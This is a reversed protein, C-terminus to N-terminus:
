IYIGKMFLCKGFVQYFWLALNSVGLDLINGLYRDAGRCGETMWTGANGIRGGMEECFYEVEQVGLSNKFLGSM